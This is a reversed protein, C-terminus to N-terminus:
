LWGTLEALKRSYDLFNPWSIDPPVGHDCMPLYGGAEIVPALRDLEAEIVKGGKAIARKDVGGWYAMREGFRERYQVLDNGAAAEMPSCVNLGAELWLPILEGVYGDSDMDLLLCGAEKVLDAWRRWAPLLFRRVMAPSIMSHAKFAMDESIGVRELKVHELIRELLAYVFNSWFAVMEEVWDPEEVMLLCLGEFGVWERLQWFPGNFQVTAIYHAKDFTRCREAFDKAFRGPTEVQYRQKMAEWDTRTEVPFKHWRRTVFDKAQRIYTFDYEDSIETIAGMWDRVLYHGHKHELVEEKFTPIMRFDVPVYWMGGVLPELHLEEYMVEFFNRGEPLGQKHWARLTSERPWGPLLPLREPKEFLLTALYSERFNM